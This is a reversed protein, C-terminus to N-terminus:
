TFRPAIENGVFELAQYDFGLTWLIFHKIGADSIEKIRKTVHDGEGIVYGKVADEFPYGTMQALREKAQDISGSRGVVYVVNQHVMSFGNPDRGEEKLYKEILRAQSAIEGPPTATRCIWGDGLRAIRRFVKEAQPVPQGRGGGGLILPPHPKQVPRPTITVGNLKWFKGDFSADEESLLVKLLRVSEDFRRGRERMDVGCTEFEKGYWGQGLGITLRGGSLVDLTALEKALIVPNRYTINVISTGIRAKDLYPCIAALTTIPEYWGARYVPPASSLLRDAHWIHSFGLKEATTVFDKLEALSPGPQSWDGGTMTPM